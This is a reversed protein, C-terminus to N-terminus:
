GTKVAEVQRDCDRQPVLSNVWEIIEARQRRKQEPTLPPNRPVAPNALLELTKEVAANHRQNGAICQERTIEIRNKQIEDSQNIAIGGGIAAIAGMSLWLVVLQWRPIVGVQRWYSRGENPGAGRAGREGREGQEGREGTGGQGGVGGVGGQGGTGGPEGQGGQGGTTGREGEARGFPDDGM